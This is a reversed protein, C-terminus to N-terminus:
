EAYGAVCRVDEYWSSYSHCTSNNLIEFAEALFAEEEVNFIDPFLFLDPAKWDVIGDDGTVEMMTKSMEELSNSGIIDLIIHVVKEAAEQVADGNPAHGEKCYKKLLLILSTIQQEKESREEASRGKMFVMDSFSESIHNTLWQQQEEEHQVMHILALLMGSDIEEEKEVMLKVRHISATVRELHEKKKQLMAEQTVLTQLLSQEPNHIVKAIEELSFDMFKMTIIKQLTFLDKDTYLRHGQQTYQSPKLLKVRDYYRLTRETVGTLKAFAGILYSQDQNM